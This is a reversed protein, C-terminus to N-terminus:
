VQFTIYVKNIDHPDPVIRTIWRDPLGSSINTWTNGYNTSVWAQADDTGAYILNSDLPSVAITTLTGLRTNPIGLSLDGSIPVWNAAGNTTRYVRDTGYYLVNRNFPCMIVPTSWNTPENFNIGNTADSWGFGGNTSKNLGGYQYEAYIIDPNVPDINVYFGDGGLLNEWDSLSGTMTRVTNNDQTGGYLRQPNQLDLGIEYFQTVPLLAPNSWSLGADTSINIGGDNGNILYNPNAPHFALAHHDVHTEYSVSWNTGSNSSRMFGVDMAYVLNPNTPHV